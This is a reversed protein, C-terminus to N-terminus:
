APIEGELGCRRSIGVSESMTPHRRLVQFLLEAALLDPEPADVGEERFWRLQEVKGIIRGSPPLGIAPQVEALRVLDPGILRGKLTALGLLRAGAEKEPWQAAGVIRNLKVRERRVLARLIDRGALDFAAAPELTAHLAAATAFLPRGHLAPDRSHWAAVQAEHPAPAGLRYRTRLRSAVV